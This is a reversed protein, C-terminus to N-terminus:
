KGPCPQRTRAFGALMEQLDPLPVPKILFHDFGAELCRRRDEDRGWGTVAILIADRLEPLQRAQRAVEYGDMKPMGLDLLVVDARFEAAFSLASSGDYALRCEHGWMQLLVALSDTWDQSDDVILVRLEGMPPKRERIAKRGPGEASPATRVACAQSGFFRIRDYDDKWAKLIEEEPHL